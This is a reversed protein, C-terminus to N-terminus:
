GSNVFMQPKADKLLKIADESLGTEFLYVERLSEMSILVKVFSDDLKVHILNLYELRKLNKINELGGLTIEACGELILKKVNGLKAVSELGADTVKANTLDLSVVHSALISLNALDEDKISMEPDASSLIQLGTENEMPLIRMGSARLAHFSDEDVAIEDMNKPEELAKGDPGIIEETTTTAFLEEPLVGFKKLIPTMKSPVALYAVVLGGVALLLLFSFVMITSFIRGALSKKPRLIITKPSNLGKVKKSKASSKTTTKMSANKSSSEDPSQEGETGSTQTEVAPVSADDGLIEPLTKWESDGQVMAYDTSLLQGQELYERAQEATYPGFTQGERSVYLNM